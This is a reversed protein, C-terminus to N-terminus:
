RGRSVLGQCARCLRARSIVKAVESPIVMDCWECSGYTQVLRELVRDIDYVADRVHAISAKALQRVEAGFADPPADALMAEYGTQRGTWADREALLAGRLRDLAEPSLRRVDDGGSLSVASGTVM